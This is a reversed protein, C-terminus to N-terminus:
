LSTWSSRCANCAKGSSGVFTDERRRWAVVGPRSRWLGEGVLSSAFFNNGVKIFVWVEEKMKESRYGRVLVSSILCKSEVLGPVEVYDLSQGGVLMEGIFSYMVSPRRDIANGVKNRVPTAM